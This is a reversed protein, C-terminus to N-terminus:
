TWGADSQKKALSKSKKSKKGEFLVSDNSLRRGKAANLLTAYV